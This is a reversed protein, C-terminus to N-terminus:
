LPYEREYTFLISSTQKYFPIGLMSCHNLFPKLTAFGTKCLQRDFFLLLTLVIAINPCAVVVTYPYLM